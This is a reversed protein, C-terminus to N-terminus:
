ALRDRGEFLIDVLLGSLRVRDKRLLDCLEELGHSLEAVVEMELMGANGKITHLARFLSNVLDPDAREGGATSQAELRLLDAEIFALLEESEDHFYRLFEARDFHAENGM